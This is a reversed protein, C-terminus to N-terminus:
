LVTHAHAAVTTSRDRQGQRRAAVISDYTYPATDHQTYCLLDAVTWAGTPADPLGAPFLDATRFPVLYSMVDNLRHGYSTSPPTHLTFNLHYGAEPHNVHWEMQSRARRLVASRPPTVCCEMTACSSLPTHMSTHASQRSPRQRVLSRDINIHHFFFTPDNVSAQFDNADGTDLHCADRDVLWQSYETTNTGVGGVFNHWLHHLQAPPVCEDPLKAIAQGGGIDTFPAGADLWCKNAANLLRGTAAAPTVNGAPMPMKLNNSWDELGHGFRTLDSMREPSINIQELNWTAVQGTACVTWLACAVTLRYSVLAGTRWPHHTRASHSGTPEAVKRVVGPDAGLNDCGRSVGDQVNWLPARPAGRTANFYFAYRPLDYRSVTWGAFAGDKLIGHPPIGPVSGFEDPTFLPQGRTEAAADWYPAAGISPDVLLLVNEFLLEFARHWPAFGLGRGEDATGPHGADGEPMAVTVSHIMALESWDLYGEGYRRRGEWTPVQLIVWMAAYVKDRAARSLTHFARRVRQRAPDVKPAACPPVVDPPNDAKPAARGSYEAFFAAATPRPVRPVGGSTRTEDVRESRRVRRGLTYTTLAHSRNNETLADVVELFYDESKAYGALGARGADSLTTDDHRANSRADPLETHEQLTAPPSDICLWQWMGVLDDDFNEQSVHFVHKGPLRMQDALSRFDAGQAALYFEYGQALHPGCGSSSQVACWVDCMVCWVACAAVHSSHVCATLPLESDPGPPCVELLCRRALDACDGQEDQARAFADFGGPLQSFCKSLETILSNDIARPVLSTNLPDTHVRAERLVGALDLTPTTNSLAWVGGGDTHIWNFASALRSLPERTSVIYLDYPELSQATNIEHIQTFNLSALQLTAQITEGATKGVHVFAIRKPESWRQCTAPFNHAPASPSVDEVEMVVLPDTWGPVHVNLGGYCSTSGSPVTGRWTHKDAVCAPSPAAVNRTPLMTSGRANDLPIAIANALSALACLRRM